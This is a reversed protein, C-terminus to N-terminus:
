CPTKCLRRAEAWCGPSRQSPLAVAHPGQWAVPASRGGPLQRHRSGQCHPAVLELRTAGGM